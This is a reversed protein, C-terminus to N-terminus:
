DEQGWPSLCKSKAAVGPCKATQNSERVFRTTRRGRTETGRNASKPHALGMELRFLLPPLEIFRNLLNAKGNSAIAITPAAVPLRANAWVVPSMVPVTVSVDPAASGPTVQVAVLGANCPDREETVLLLPFKRM